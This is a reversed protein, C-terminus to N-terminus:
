CFGYLNWLLSDTATWHGHAIFAGRVRGIMLDVEETDEGLFDRVAKSFMEGTTDDGDRFFHADFADNVATPIAVTHVERFKRALNRKIGLIDDKIRGEKIREMVKAIWEDATRDYLFQAALRAAEEQCATPFHHKCFTKCHGLFLLHVFRSLEEVNRAHRMCTEELKKSQEPLFAEVIGGLMDDQAPPAPPAAQAAQM